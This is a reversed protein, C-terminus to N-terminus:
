HKTPIFFNVVLYHVEMAKEKYVCCSDKWEQGPVHSVGSQSLILHLRSGPQAASINCLDTRGKWIYIRSASVFMGSPSFKMRKAWHM